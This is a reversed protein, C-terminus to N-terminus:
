KIIKNGNEDTCISAGPVFTIAEAVNGGQQTSVQVLVGIGGLQMAKTSKMWGQSESSAKSILVWVDGGFIEIDSVKSVIDKHSTVNLTKEQVTIEGENIIKNM